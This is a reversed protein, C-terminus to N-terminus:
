EFEKARRETHMLNVTLRKLHSNCFTLLILGEEEVKLLELIIKSKREVSSLDFCYSGRKEGRISAPGFSPTTLGGWFSRGSLGRM